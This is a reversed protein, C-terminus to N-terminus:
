RKLVEIITVAMDKPSVNMEDNLWQQIVGICGSIIFPMYYHLKIESSPNYIPPHSQKIADKLKELFVYDGEPGLLIRCIEANSQVFEFLYTFFSLLNDYTNASKTFKNYADSFDQLIETEVTEVMDFVDKYYLYFTSRNVDALDTIEKVTISSMKKKSMLTTLAQLLVKKTKRSRRDIKQAEM